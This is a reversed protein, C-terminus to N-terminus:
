GDGGDKEGGAFAEIGTVQRAREREVLGQELGGSVAGIHEDGDGAIEAGGAV